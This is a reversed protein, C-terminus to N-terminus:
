GMEGSPADLATEIYALARGPTATGDADAVCLREEPMFLLQGVFPMVQRVDHGAGPALMLRWRFPAVLRAALDRGTDFYHMGRALRHPGQAMAGATGRLQRDAAPGATDRTGLLLTLCAALLPRMDAEEQGSGRLTYPMAFAGEAMPLTYWGANAAVAGLVRACPVFTLLRHTFQAGASHGFLYYGPQAGGLEKRIAAFLREVEYYLQAQPPRLRGERAAAGNAPGRTIIGLTYDESSRYDQRTFEITIVLAQHREAAAAAADIYRAADRQAGHMVFWLPGRTADFRSPRFTHAKLRRGDHALFEVTGRGRRQLATATAVWAAERVGPPGSQRTCAAVPADQAM